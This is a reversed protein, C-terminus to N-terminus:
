RASRSKVPVRVAGRMLETADEGTLGHRGILHAEGGDSSILILDGAGGPSARSPTAPRRSPKGAAGDAACWWSRAAARRGGRSQRTLNQEHCRSSRLRPGPPRTVRQRLKLPVQSVVQTVLPPRRRLRRAQLVDVPRQGDGDPVAESVAPGPRGPCVMHGVRLEDIVQRRLVHQAALQALVRQIGAGRVEGALGNGCGPIRELVQLGGVNLGPQPVPPQAPQGRAQQVRQGRQVHRRHAIADPILEPDELLGELIALLNLKRIVPRKVAVRPLEGSGIVELDDPEVAAGLRHVVVLSPQPRAPHRPLRHPTLGAVHQDRAVAGLRDVDQPQPTGPGAPLREVQAQEVGAPVGLGDLRLHARLVQGLHEVGAVAGLGAPLQPELLLIEQDGARQPVDDAPEPEAVTVPRRERVLDDDLEVVGVRHQRYGLQHPQQDILVPDAPLLGPGDGAPGEGVGAVGQQGLGQLGPRHRHEPPQQGAVQLDDVGEVAGEQVLHAGPVRAVLPADRPHRQDLLVGPM